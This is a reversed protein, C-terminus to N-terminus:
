IDDSVDKLYEEIDSSNAEESTKKAWLEKISVETKQVGLTKELDAVFEEVLEQQAQNAIPWFDTPWLITPTSSFSETEASIWAGVWAELKSIDRAYM